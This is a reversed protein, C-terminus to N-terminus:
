KYRRRYTNPNPTKIEVKKNNEFTFDIKYYDNYRLQCRMTSRVVVNITYIGRQAKEGM